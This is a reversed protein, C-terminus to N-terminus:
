LLSGTFLLSFFGHFAIIVFDFTQDVYKCATNNREGADNLGSRRLEPQGPSVGLRHSPLSFLLLM